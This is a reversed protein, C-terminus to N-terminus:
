HCLENPDINVKVLCAEKAAIIEACSFPKEEESIEEGAM